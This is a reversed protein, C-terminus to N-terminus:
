TTPVANHTARLQTAHHIRGGCNRATVMYIRHGKRATIEALAETRVRQGYGSIPHGSRSHGFPVNEKVAGLRPIGVASSQTRRVIDATDCQMFKTVHESETM